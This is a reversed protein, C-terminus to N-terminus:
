DSNTNSIAFVVLSIACRATEQDKQPSELRVQQIWLKTPLGDLQRILTYIDHFNGEFILNLPVRSIHAMAIPPDPDFDLIRVNCAKALQTIEGFTAPAANSAPTHAEWAEVHQRALELKKQTPLFQGTLMRTADILTGNTALERELAVSRERSPLYFLLMYALTVLVLPATVMWSRKNLLAKM